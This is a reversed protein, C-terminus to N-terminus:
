RGTNTLWATFEAYHELWKAAANLETKSKIGIALRQAEEIAEKDADDALGHCEQLYKQYAQKGCLISAQAAYNKPEGHSATDVQNPQSNRIRAFSEFLLQLLFGVDDRYRALIEVQDGPVDLEFRAMINREGTHPDVMELTPGGAFVFNLEWATELRGRIHDLRKQDDARSSTSSMRRHLQQSALTM